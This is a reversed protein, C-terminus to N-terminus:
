IKILPEPFVSSLYNELPKPFSKQQSKEYGTVILNEKEAFKAFMQRSPLTVRNIYITLNRHTLKHFVTKQGSIFPEFDAPVQSPFEYLKKWIFGEDRQKILFQDEFEVFYYTLEL